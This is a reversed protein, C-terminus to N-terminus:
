VSYGREELKKKIKKRLRHLKTKVKMNSIGMKKAITKTKLSNYYFLVFINYDEEDLDSLVNEIEKLKLHNEVINSLDDVKFDQIENEEFDTEVFCNKMKTMKKKTLNHAISAIYPKIEKEIDLKEKNKWLSYFVDLIIEEIDEQKLYGGCINSIIKQLYGSYENIILEIDLEKDLIYDKILNM